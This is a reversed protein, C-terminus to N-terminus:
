KSYIKDLFYISNIIFIDEPDDIQFSKFKKQPFAGIKGFFRNKKELFKKKNFIFFSGNEYYKPKIHQRPQRNKYDYNPKMSKKDWIFHDSVIMSSFLSDLKKKLFFDIANDLDQYGRIPSTAQIAVVYDFKTNKEIEKIAHLWGSESSSNDKALEKPRKIINAKNKYAFNLSHDQTEYATSAVEDLGVTHGVRGTYTDDQNNMPMPNDVIVQGNKFDDGAKYNDAKSWSGTYRISANESAAEASVDVGTANNNSRFYTGVQGSATKEENSSAFKPQTSQVIISGGISDGGQSVPSVGAYVDIVGINSPPIYSLPPNMHNPCTATLDMGDVKIRLRDDALGRISPFSSVGGTQNISVGPTNSLLSASDATAPHNVKIVDQNISSATFPANTQASDQVIVPTLLIEEAQIIHTSLGLMVALSLQNVRFYM